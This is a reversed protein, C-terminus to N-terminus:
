VLEIEDDEYDDSEHGEVSTVPTPLDSDEDDDLDEEDELGLYGEDDDEDEWADVAIPTSRTAGGSSSSSSVTSSTASDFISSRSWVKSSAGTSTRSM